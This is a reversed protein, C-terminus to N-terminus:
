IRRLHPLEQAPELPERSTRRPHQVEHQPHPEHLRRGHADAQLLPLLHAPREGAHRSHLLHLRHRLSGRAAAHALGMIVEKVQNIDVKSIYRMCIGSGAIAILLFLAFYDAPLSIYRLKETCVRRLLLFALAGLIFADTLYFRPAGVQFVGDVFEIVAICTPVPDLFFRAHRIIIVLMSYHFLLAFVWLWKNSFYTIRPAGDITTREARTNRFLSRFAFVELIMRGIVAPTTWPCELRNPKIWDLSRQQGAVTPIAFPVPSKAWRVIKWIFGIIFVAGAVLPLIVGLLYQLGLASGAWGILLILLTAAFAITM